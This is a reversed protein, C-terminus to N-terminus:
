DWKKSRNKKIEGRRSKSDIRKMKSSYSPKTARRPKQRFFSMELLKKLRLLCEKKNMEQDRHVDSRISLIGERTIWSSLKDAIINKQEDNFQNSELYPWRLQVSSNTRNVNQGGPGRSRQATFSVEQQVQNWIQEDLPKHHM